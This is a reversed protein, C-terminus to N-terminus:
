LVDVEGEELSRVFHFRTNARAMLPWNVDM